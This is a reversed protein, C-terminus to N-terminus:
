FYNGPEEKGSRIQNKELHAIGHKLQVPKMGVLAKLGARLIASKKIHSGAKLCTAV